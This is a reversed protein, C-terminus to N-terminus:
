DDNTAKQWIQKLKSIQDTTLEVDATLQNGVSAVFGIEWDNLKDQAFECDELMDKFHQNATMKLNSRYIELAEQEARHRHLNDVLRLETESKKLDDM